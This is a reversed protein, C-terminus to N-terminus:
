GAHRDVMVEFSKSFFFSKAAENSGVVGPCRGSAGAGTVASDSGALVRRLAFIYQDRSKLGRQTETRAELTAIMRSITVARRVPVTNLEELTVLVAAAAPGPM